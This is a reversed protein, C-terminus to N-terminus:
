EGEREPLSLIVSIPSKGYRYNGQMCGCDDEGNNSWDIPCHDCYHSFTFQDDYQCLFCDYSIAVNPFHRECWEEKFDERDAYSPTDGLEKQMDGWMQRHLRLAEEKTLKVLQEGKQWQAFTKTQM